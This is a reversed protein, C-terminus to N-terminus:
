KQHYEGHDEQDYLAHRRMDVQTLVAGSVPVGTRSLAALGSAAASRTTNGWQVVYLAADALGNLRQIHSIAIAPPLDLVILDYHARLESLLLRVDWGRLA